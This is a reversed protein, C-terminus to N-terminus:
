CEVFDLTEAPKKILFRQSKKMPSEMEKRQLMQWTGARAQGTVYTIPHFKIIEDPDLNSGM